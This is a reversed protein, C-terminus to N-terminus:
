FLYLCTLSFHLNGSPWAVIRALIIHSLSASHVAEVMSWNKVHFCVNKPHFGVKGGGGEGWAINNMLFPKGVLRGVNCRPPLPSRAFIAAIRSFPVKDWVNQGPNYTKINKDPGPSSVVTTWPYAISIAQKNVPHWQITCQLHGGNKHWENVGPLQGPLDVVPLPAATKSHHGIGCCCHSKQCHCWPRRCSPISSWMIATRWKTESANPNSMIVKKRSSPPFHSSSSHADWKQRGKERTRQWTKLRTESKINTSRIRKCPGPWYKKLGMNFSYTNEGAEWTLQTKRWSVPVPVHEDKQHLDQLDINIIIISYIINNEDWSKTISFTKNVWWIISTASPPATSISTLPLLTANLHLLFM